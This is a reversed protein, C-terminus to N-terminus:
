RRTLVSKRCYDFSQGARPSRGSQSQRQPVSGSAPRAVAPIDANSGASARNGTQASAFGPVRHVGIDRRATGTLRLPPQMTSAGRTVQPGRGNPNRVARERPSAEPPGTAPWTAAPWTQPALAPGNLSLATVVLGDADVDLELRVEDLFSQRVALRKRGVRGEAAHGERGVLARDAVEIRALRGAGPELGEGLGTRSVEQDLLEGRLGVVRVDIRLPRLTVKGWPAVAACVNSDWRAERPWSWRVKTALKLSDGSQNTPARLTSRRGPPTHISSSSTSRNAQSAPVSPPVSQSEASEAVSGGAFTVLRFPMPLNLSVGIPLSVIVM